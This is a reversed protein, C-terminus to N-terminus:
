QAIHSLATTKTAVARTTVARGGERPFLDVLRGIAAKNIARAGSGEITTVKMTDTIHFLRHLEIIAGSKGVSPTNRRETYLHESPMCVTGTGSTSQSSGRNSKMPASCVLTFSDANYVTVWKKRPFIFPNTAIPILHRFVFLIFISSSIRVHTQSPLQFREQINEMLKIGGPTSRIKKISHYETANKM